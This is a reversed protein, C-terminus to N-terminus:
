DRAISKPVWDPELLMHKIDEPDDTDSYEVQTWYMYFDARLKKDTIKFDGQHEHAELWMRFGDPTEIGSQQFRIRGGGFRNYLHRNTKWQHLMAEAIFRDPSKLQALQSEAALLEKEEPTSQRDKTAAKAAKIQERLEDVLKLNEKTEKEILAKSKPDRQKDLAVMVAVIEEETSAFLAEHKKLYAQWVPAIFLRSLGDVKGHRKDIEDRYVPIGLVEGIQERKPPSPQQSHLPTACIVLLLLSTVMSTLRTSVRM